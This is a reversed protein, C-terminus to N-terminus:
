QRFIRHVTVKRRRRKERMRELFPQLAAAVIAMLVLSGLRSWFTRTKASQAAEQRDKEIGRMFRKHVRQQEEARHIFDQLDPDVGLFPKREAGPAQAWLRGGGLSLLFVLGLPLGLLRLLLFNAQM